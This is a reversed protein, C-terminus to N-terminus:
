RATFRPSVPRVRQGALVGATSPIVPEGVGIGELIEVQTNGRLCLRVPRLAARGDQVGMVWPRGSVADRVARMPLVLTDDRRAVEIDVSVTMDQRLFDPPDPVTLKVTVSARALDIGPNIYSVMAEFRRDPYADASAVATQGMAVSALNREDLQLVLQTAGVPALVLLAKGPQAVTGREVARAILIGDRPAVITTYALRSAAAGLTARAQGLQTEAMTYDSGRPSATFVQLEAARTQARAVDLNKRADDLASRSAVGTRALEATRDYTTQADALTARAQSVQERATPLTLEVLQRMRAEAQAVAGEAQALAASLEASEIVVLPQGQQVKQGEEVLVDQVTGTIQSAIEVRYPSEVHGSAVVTQILAGRRATEVVVAPGLLSRAAQWVGVGALLLAALVFWRHAWAAQVARTGARSPLGPGQAGISTTM